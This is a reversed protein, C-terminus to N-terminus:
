ATVGDATPAGDVTMRVVPAATRALAVNVCAVQGSATARQLAPNLESVQTVREGHGGLAKVADEYATPLLECGVLRESGYDRLQIQYEANWCADNGLVALFNMGYRHATDFEAMHFGFTGDGLLAVVPVDPKALCAAMAFPVASGISGSVGNILRHRAQLCAQSWQGFEGGDIVLVADEHQDLLPQVARAVAAAHVGGDVDGQESWQAPRYAVHEAVSKAWATDTTWTQEKAKAGLAEFTPLVDALISAVMRTGANTGAQRVQAPDPDFQAFKCAKDFAPPQGFKMTYDLPKGALVVLDARALAQAGAGLAPDNLGRPSEMGILPIGSYACFQQAAALAGGRMATPGTVLVPREANKMADLLAVTSQADPANAVQTPPTKTATGPPLAQALFDGPLSLHVPGPRGEHATKFAAYFASDFQEAAAVVSSAKAVHETMQAQALEQFAGSGLEGLSAHGSMFIVPSEAARADYVASLANLHGPGATVLAVGVEGTLQGWANAMHVAAAEQRVHVIDIGVDLCADFVPMIQNGSLAFIRSVGVKAMAAVLLDAGRKPAATM